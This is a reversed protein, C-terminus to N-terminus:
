LYVKRVGMCKLNMKRIGNYYNYQILYSCLLIRFYEEPCPEITNYPIIETIKYIIKLTM